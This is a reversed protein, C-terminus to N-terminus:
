MQRSGWPPEEEDVVGAGSSEGAGGAVALGHDDLDVAVEGIELQPEVVAGSLAVDPYWRFDPRTPASPTPHSVIQRLGTDRTWRVRLGCGWHLASTTSAVSLSKNSSNIVVDRWGRM